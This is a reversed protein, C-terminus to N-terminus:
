PSLAQESLILAPAKEFIAGSAVPKIVGSFAALFYKTLV